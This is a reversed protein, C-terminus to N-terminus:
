FLFIIFAIISQSQYLSIVVAVEESSVKEGDAAVAEAGVFKKHKKHFKKPISASVAQVFPNKNLVSETRLVKARHKEIKRQVSLDPSM